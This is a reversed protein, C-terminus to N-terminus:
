RGPLSNRSQDRPPEAMLEFTPLASPLRKSPQGAASGIPQMEIWSMERNAPPTSTVCLRVANATGPDRLALGLAALDHEVATVLAEADRRSDSRSMRIFMNLDTKLAAAAEERVIDVLQRLAVVQEGYDGPMDEKIIERISKRVSAQDLENWEKENPADQEGHM